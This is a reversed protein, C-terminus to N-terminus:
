RLLTYFIHYNEVFLLVFNGDGGDMLISLEKEWSLSHVKEMRITDHERTPFLFKIWSKWKGTPREKKM